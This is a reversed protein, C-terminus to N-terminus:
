NDEASIQGGVKSGGFYGIIGGVILGPITGAIAGLPGGAIGLGAGAKAGLVAGATLGAWGGETEYNQNLDAPINPISKETEDMLQSIELDILDHYRM